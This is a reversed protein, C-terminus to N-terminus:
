TKCLYQYALAVAKKYVDCRKETNWVKKLKEEMIQFDAIENRTFSLQFRNSSPNTSSNSYSNWLGNSM